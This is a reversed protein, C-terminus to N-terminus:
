VLAVERDFHPKKEAHLKLNVGCAAAIRELMPLSQGRYEADELRAIVSQTTGIKRALETQTLEADERMERVLLALDIQQLTRAYTKRYSVSRRSRQEVIEAHRDRKM